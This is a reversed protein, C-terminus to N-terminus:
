GQFNWTRLGRTQIKKPVAWEHTMSFQKSSFHSTHNLLILYTQIKTKPKLSNTSFPFNSLFRNEFISYFELFMHLSFPTEVYTQHHLLKIYLVFSSAATYRVNKYSAPVKLIQFAIYFSCTNKLELKTLKINDTNFKSVTPM